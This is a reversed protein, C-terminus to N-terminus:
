QLLQLQQPLLRQPPLRQPLLRQLLQLQQPLQNQYSGLYFTLM